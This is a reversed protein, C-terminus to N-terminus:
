SQKTVINVIKNPVVIEKIITTNELHKKVNDLEKALRLTEEKDTNSPVNM